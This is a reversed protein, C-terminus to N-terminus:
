GAHEIGRQADRIIDCVRRVDPILDFSPVQPAGPWSSGAFSAGFPPLPGFTITGSGDARERVAVEGLTRLPLSRTAGRWPGVGEVEIIIRESTVAYTTRARRAADMFFRGITIYLGVLVFPIDWLAFFTPAGDRLVSSEWFVAFGAWMVSFPILLADSARLVLGRRPVGAWLQREGRDLAFRFSTVPV